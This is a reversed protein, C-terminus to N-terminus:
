VEMFVASNNALRMATVRTVDDGLLFCLMKVSERVEMSDIELFLCWLPMWSICWCSVLVPCSIVTAKIRAWRSMYPFSIASRFALSDAM